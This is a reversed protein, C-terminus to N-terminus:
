HAAVKLLHRFVEPPLGRSIHQEGSEVVDRSRDVYFWDYSDESRIEIGLHSPGKDWSLFLGGEGSPTAHPPRIALGKTALLTAWLKQAGHAALQNVADRRGLSALYSQWQAKLSQGVRESGADSSATTTQHELANSAVLPLSFVLAASTPLRLSRLTYATM